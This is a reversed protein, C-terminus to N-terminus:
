FTLNSAVKSEVKGPTCIRYEDPNGEIDIHFVIKGTIINNAIIQFVDDGYCGWVVTYNEYGEFEGEGNCAIKLEGNVVKFPGEFDPDSTFEDYLEGFGGHFDAMLEPNAKGIDFQTDGDVQHINLTIYLGV